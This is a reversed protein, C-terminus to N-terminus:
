ASRGSTKPHFATSLRLSLYRRDLIAADLTRWFTTQPSCVFPPADDPALALKGVTGKHSFLVDGPRGIGKRIRALARANIRSASAFLVRGHDMDSARVFATGDACFEDGRPRYEGHNGDEVLLVGRRELEAVTAEGGGGQDTM